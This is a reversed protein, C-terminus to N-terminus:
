PRCERRMRQHAAGEHGGDPDTDDLDPGDIEEEIVEFSYGEEAHPLLCGPEHPTATGFDRINCDDAWDGGFADAEEFTDFSFPFTGCDSAGNDWNIRFITRKMDAGVGGQM